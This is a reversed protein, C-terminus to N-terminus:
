RGNGFTRKAEAYFQPLELLRKGTALWEDDEKLRCQKSRGIRQFVYFSHFGDNDSNLRCLLTVYEREPRVPRADVQDQRKWDSVHSMYDCLSQLPRRDLPYGARTERPSFGRRERSVTVNLHMCTGRALARHSVSPRDSFHVKLPVTDSSSMPAAFRVSTTTTPPQQHSAGPEAILNQTLRGNAALLRKLRKLLERDSTRERKKRM